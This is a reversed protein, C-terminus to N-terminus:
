QKRSRSRRSKRLCALATECLTDTKILTGDLDVCLPLSHAQCTAVTNFDAKVSVMPSGPLDRIGMGQGASASIKSPIVASM